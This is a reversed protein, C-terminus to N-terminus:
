PRASGFIPGVTGDQFLPAAHSHDVSQARIGHTHEDAGGGKADYSAGGRPFKGVLESVMTWTAPCAAKFMMIAGSPVLHSAVTPTLKVESISENVVSSALTAYISGTIQQPPGLKSLQSPTLGVSVEIWPDIHEWDPPTEPSLVQSFYGNAVTVELPGRESRWKPAGGKGDTVVFEMYRKGTVPQNKADSLKGQFTFSGKWGAHVQIVTLVTLVFAASITKLILLSSRRRM